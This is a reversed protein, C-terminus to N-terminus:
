EILIDGFTVVTVKYFEKKGHNFREIKCKLNEFLKKDKQTTALVERGYTEAVSKWPHYGEPTAFLPETNKYKLLFIFTPKTYDAELICISQSFKKDLEIPCVWRIGEDISIIRESNDTCIWEKLIADYNLSYTNLEINTDNLFLWSCKGDAALTKNPIILLGAFFLFVCCVRITSKLIIKKTQEV